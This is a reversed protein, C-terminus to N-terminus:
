SGCQLLCLVPGGACGGGGACAYMVGVQVYIANADTVDSVVVEMRERTGPAGNAAAGAAEEEGEEAAEPEDKEWM